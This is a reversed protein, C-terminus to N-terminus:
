LGGVLYLFFVRFQNTNIDHMIIDDAFKRKCRQGQDITSVAFPIRYM